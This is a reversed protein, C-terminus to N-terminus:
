ITNNFQWTNLISRMFDDSTLPASLQYLVGKFVFWVERKEGVDDTSIFATGRAGTGVEVTQVDRITIGPIDQRIRAETIDLSTEGVEQIYVQFIHDHVADTVLIMTGSDVISAEVTTGKPYTFAFPYVTHKYVYETNDIGQVEPQTVMGSTQYVRVRWLVCSGLIILGAIIYRRTSM